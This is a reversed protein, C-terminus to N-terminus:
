PFFYFEVLISENAISWVHLAAFRFVVLLVSCILDFRCHVRTTDDRMRHKGNTCWTYTLIPGWWTISKAKPKSDMRSMRTELMTDVVIIIRYFLPSHHHVRPSIGGYIYLLAAIIHKCHTAAAFRKGSLRVIQQCQKQEGIERETPQKIRSSQAHLHRGHVPFLM